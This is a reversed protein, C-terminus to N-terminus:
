KQPLYILPGVYGEPQAVSPQKYAGTLRYYMDLYAARVRFDVVERESVVQGRHTFFHLKTANLGQFLKLAMFGPTLKYDELIVKIVQQVKPNRLTVAGHVAAVNDNAVEYGAQKVAATTNGGNDIYCLVFARQKLTLADFLREGVPPAADGSKPENLRRM